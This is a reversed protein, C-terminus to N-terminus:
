VTENKILESDVHICVWHRSGRHPNALKSVHPCDGVANWLQEFTLRKRSNQFLRDFKHAFKRPVRLTWAGEKRAHALHVGYRAELEKAWVDNQAFNIVTDAIGGLKIEETPLNAILKDVDSATLGHQEWMYDVIAYMTRYLARWAEKLSVQNLETFIALFGGMVSACVRSKHGLSNSKHERIKDHCFQVADAYRPASLALLHCFDKSVARMADITDERKSNDMPEDLQVLNFRAKDQEDHLNVEVSAFHAAFSLKKQIGQQSATGKAITDDESSVTITRALNIIDNVIKQKYTTDTNMEDLFVVPSQATQTEFNFLLQELGARTSELLKIALPKTLNYLIHNVLTSKGTGTPGYVWFHAKFDSFGAFAAQAVQGILLWAIASDFSPYARMIAQEIRDLLDRPLRRKTIDEFLDDSPVNVYIDGEAPMSSTTKSLEGNKIYRGCSSNTVYLDNDYFVGKGRKKKAKSPNYLDQAWAWLSEQDVPRGAYAWYAESGVADTFHMLSNATRLDGARALMTAERVYSHIAITDAAVDMIEPTQPVIRNLGVNLLHQVRVPGHKLLIDNFDTVDLMDGKPDTIKLHPVNEDKLQKFFKSLMQNPENLKAKDCVILWFTDPEKRRLIHYVPLVQSLGATCVVTDDPRFEALTAGTTFGEAILGVKALLHAQKRGTNLINYAKTITSGSVNKKRGDTDRSQAGVIQGTHDQYPVYMKDRVIFTNFRGIKKDKFVPHDGAPDGQAKLRRFTAIFRRQADKREEEIRMQAQEFEQAFKDPDAKKLTDLELKHTVGSAWDQILLLAGLALVALNQKGESTRPRYFGAPNPEGWETIEHGYVQKIHAKLRALHHDAIRAM